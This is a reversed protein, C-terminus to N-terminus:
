HAPRAGSSSTNLMPLHILRQLQVCPYSFTLLFAPKVKRWSRSAEKNSSEFHSTATVFSENIISKCSRETELWIVSWVYGCAYCSSLPAVVKWSPWRAPSTLRLAVVVEDGLARRSRLGNAGIMRRGEGASRLAVMVLLDVVVFLLWPSAPSSVSTQPSGSLPWPLLPPLTLPFLATHSSPYLIHPLMPLAYPITYRYSTLSKTAVSLFNLRLQSPSPQGKM